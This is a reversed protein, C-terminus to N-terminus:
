SSQMAGAKSILLTGMGAGTGGGLSHCLQFGQLCDCGALCLLPAALHMNHLHPPRLIRSGMCVLVCAQSDRRSGSCAIRLPARLRPFKVPFLQNLRQSPEPVLRCGLISVSQSPSSTSLDAYGAAAKQKRACLTWCRTLSNPM